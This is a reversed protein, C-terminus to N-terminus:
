PEPPDDVANADQRLPELRQREMGFLVFHEHLPVLEDKRLEIPLRRARPQDLPRHGSEVGREAHEDPGAHGNGDDRGRGAVEGPNGDGQAQEPRQEHEVARDQQDDFAAHGQARPMRVPM